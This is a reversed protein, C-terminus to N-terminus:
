KLRCVSISNRRRGQTASEKSRQETKKKNTSGFLIKALSSQIPLTFSSKMSAPGFHLDDAPVGYESVDARTEQLPLVASVIQQAREADRAKNRQLLAVAYYLSERTPHVKTGSAIGSHYGPSRFEVKLMKQEADYRADYHDLLRKLAPVSPQDDAKTEVAVSLVLIVLLVFKKM